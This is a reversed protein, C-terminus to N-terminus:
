TWGFTERMLNEMSDDAFIVSYTDALIQTYSAESIWLHSLETRSAISAKSHQADGGLLILMSLLRGIDRLLPIVVEDILHQPESDGESSKDVPQREVCSLSAPSLLLLSAGLDILFLGDSINPNPGGTYLPMSYRLRLGGVIQVPSYHSM